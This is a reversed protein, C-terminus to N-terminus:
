DFIIKNESYLCVPKGGLLIYGLMDSEGAVSNLKNGWMM